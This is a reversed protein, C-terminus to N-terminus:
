VQRIARLILERYDRPLLTIKEALSDICNVTNHDLLPEENRAMSVLYNMLVRSQRYFKGREGVLGMKEIEYALTLIENVALIQPMGLLKVGNLVHKLEHLLGWFWEEGTRNLEGKRSLLKVIPLEVVTFKAKTSKPYTQFVGTEHTISFIINGRGFQRLMESPLGLVKGGGCVIGDGTFLTRLVTILNETELMDENRCVLEVGPAVSRYIVGKEPSVGNPEEVNEALKADIASGILWMWEFYFVHYYTLHRFANEESVDPLYESGYLRYFESFLRRSLETGKEFYEVQKSVDIKDTGMILRVSEVSNQWERIRGAMNWSYKSNVIRRAIQEMLFNFTTEKDLGEDM